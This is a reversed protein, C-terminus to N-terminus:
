KVGNIRYETDTSGGISAQFRLNYSSTNTVLIQRVDFFTAYKHEENTQDAIRDMYIDEDLITGTSTGNDVVIRVKLPYNTADDDVKDADVLLTIKVWCRYM